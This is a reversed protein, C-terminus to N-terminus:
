TQRPMAPVMKELLDPAYQAIQDNSISNSTCIERYLKASPRAVRKQTHLDLHYLGFRQTWGREWEFNDILSWHFYGKIQWNFNAARWAQMLHDILYTPRVQDSEDEIGNETIYIPLHYSQFWKLADFFGAPENAIFGTPSLKSDPNYSSAGFLESAHSLSFRVRETTYYNLGLYDQTGQAEPISLNRTLLQFRGTTLVEPFAKNFFRDRVNAVFRDLPNRLNRPLFGRVNHAVGVLSGPDIRHIEHYAHAHARAM